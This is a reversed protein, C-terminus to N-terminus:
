NMLLFVRFTLSAPLVEGWESENVRVCESLTQVWHTAWYVCVRAFPACHSRLMKRYTKGLWFFPSAPGLVLLLLPLPLLTPTAAVFQIGLWLCWMHMCCSLALAHTLSLARIVSHSRSLYVLRQNSHIFKLVHLQCFNDSPLLFFFRCSVFRFFFWAFLLCFSRQASRVLQQLVRRIHALTLAPSLSPACFHEAAGVLCFVFSFWFGISLFWFRASQWAPPM